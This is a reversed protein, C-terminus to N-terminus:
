ETDFQLLFIFMVNFFALLIKVPSFFRQSLVDIYMTLICIIEEYIFTM